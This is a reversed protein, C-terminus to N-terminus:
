NTKLSKKGCQLVKIYGFHILDNIFTTDTSTDIVVRDMEWFWNKSVERHTKNNKPKDFAFERLQRVLDYHNKAIIKVGDMKYICEWRWTMEYEKNM